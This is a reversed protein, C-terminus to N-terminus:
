ADHGHYDPARSACTASAHCAAVRRCIDAFTRVFVGNETM